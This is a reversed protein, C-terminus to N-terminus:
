FLRWSKRPQGKKKHVWAMKVRAQAVPQVEDQRRLSFILNVKSTFAKKFEGTNSNQWCTLAKNKGSVYLCYNGAKQIEWQLEVSVYCPQGQLMAVCQDPNVKMKAEIDTAHSIFSFLFLLTLLSINKVQMVLGPVPRQIRAKIKISNM